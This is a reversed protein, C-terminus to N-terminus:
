GALLLPALLTHTNAPFASAQWQVFALLFSSTSPLGQAPVCLFARSLRGKIAPPTPPIRCFYVHLVHSSGKTRGHGPSWAAPLCVNVGLCMKVEPHQTHDCSRPPLQRVEVSQLVFAGGLWSALTKQPRPGAYPHVCSFGSFAGTGPMM